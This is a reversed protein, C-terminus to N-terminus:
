CAGVSRRTANADYRADSCVICFGCMSTAECHAPLLGGCKQRLRIVEQVRFRARDRRGDVVRAGERAVLVVLDPRASGPVTTVVIRGVFRGFAQEGLELTARLRQQEGGAQSSGRRQELGKGAVIVHGHRLIHVM